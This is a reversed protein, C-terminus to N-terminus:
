ITEGYFKTIREQIIHTFGKEFSTPLTRNTNKLKTEAEIIGAALNRKGFSDIDILFNRIHAAEIQSKSPPETFLNTLALLIDNDEEIEAEEEYYEEEELFEEEEIEQIELSQYFPSTPLTFSAAISNIINRALVDAKYRTKLFISLFTKYKEIDEPLIHINNDIAYLILPHSPDTARKIMLNGLNGPASSSPVLGQFDTKVQALRDLNGLVIDFFSIKGISHFLSQKQTDTLNAYSDIIFDRLNAGVVKESIMILNDDSPLRRNQQAITLTSEKLRDLIADSLIPIRSGDMRLHEKTTLDLFSSEPVKCTSDEILQFLSSFLRSSSFELESTWKIVTSHVWHDSTADNARPYSILLTPGNLGLSSAKFPSIKISELDKSLTKLLRDLPLTTNYSSPFASHIEALESLMTLKTEPLNLDNTNELYRSALTSVRALLNKRESHDFDKLITNLQSFRSLTIVRRLVGDLNRTHLPEQSSFQAHTIM